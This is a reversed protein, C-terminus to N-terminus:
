SPFRAPSITPATSQQLWLHPQDKQSVPLERAPEPKRCWQLQLHALSLAQCPPHLPAYSGGMRRSWCTPRAPAPTPVLHRQRAARRAGPSPSCRSPTASPSPAQPGLRTASLACMLEWSPCARDPLPTVWPGRSLASARGAGVPCTNAWRPGPDPSLQDLAGPALLHEAREDEAQAPVQPGLPAVWPRSSRPLPVKLIFPAIVEPPRPPAGLGAPRLDGRAARTGM